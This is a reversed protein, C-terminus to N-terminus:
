EPFEISRIVGVTGPMAGEKAEYEIRIRRPRQPGCTFEMAAHDKTTISGPDLLAFSMAEAGVGIRMRIKGGMCDIQKLTGEAVALAERRRLKPPPPDSEGSRSRDESMVPVHPVYNLADVLQDLRDIEETSKAYKRCTTAAAKAEAKRDLRYYAYAMAHFFGFAQEETVRKVLQFQALAEAHKDALVYAYGLELRAERDDPDIETARKLVAVAEARQDQARLLRGYDLYMRANTSGLEAARAYHTLAEPRKGERLSLRALGQEVQWDKPNERGLRGYLERAEAAKGRTNALIDALVLGAELPSSESVEPADVDKALKTNFLSANFRTGRMYSALDNQVQAVPKGYAKQFTDTMSAGSKIGELLMPLKPRYDTGLYLMHVLAWSEAYFLGAHTKENYLPSDHEVALLTALDIWKSEQLLIFHPMIIDGVEIKGALPKLNSYLEALGENFWVPAAIGSHKVLLHIYEHVAVPFYESSGSKMVIYDRDEAGLYFAAAFDNPAYPAFEKDSRFLVIRVPPGSKLGLGMAERFFARVQEFHRAVERGNREGATTFLEFNPSQIKLWRPGESGVAPLAALACLLATALRGACQRM